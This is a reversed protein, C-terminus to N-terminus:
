TKKFENEHISKYREPDYNDADYDIFNKSDNM